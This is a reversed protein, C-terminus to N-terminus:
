RSPREQRHLMPVASVSCVEIMNDPDTVAERELIRIKLVDSM